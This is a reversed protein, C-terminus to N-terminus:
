GGLGTIIEDLNETRALSADLRSAHRLATIAERPRELRVYVMGLHYHILGRDPGREAARGLVREADAYAGRRYYVWGLTDLVEPATPRLEAARTALPLARESGAPRESLILALGTLTGVHNGDLALAREYSVAALEAQGLAQRAQGLGCHADVLDPKMRIATAFAHAADRPRGQALLVSGTVLLAGPNAPEDRQLRRALALAQALRGDQTYLGALALRADGRAPDIKLVAEFHLAAQERQGRDLLYRALLM